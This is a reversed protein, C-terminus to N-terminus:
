EHLSAGRLLFFHPVILIVVSLLRAQYNKLIEKEGKKITTRTNSWEKQCFIVRMCYLEHTLFSAYIRARTHVNKM